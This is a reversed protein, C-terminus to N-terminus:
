LGGSAHGTRSRLTARDEYERRANLGMARMQGPHASGMGGAGGPAPQRRAPLASGHHRGEGPGSMAGLDSALVPLGTAYAEIITLGFTEYWVSPFVLFKAGAMAAAVAEPSQRGLYDIAVGAQVAETVAGSEPGDGIIRLRIRGGLLRWADLLPQVGKERVCAVSSCPTAGDTREVGPDPAFNPKVVIRDGPLGGEIFKDRAFRTLAIFLDM